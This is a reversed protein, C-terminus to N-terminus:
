AAELLEKLISEKAQRYAERAQEITEFSGLHIQKRKFKIRAVYRNRNKYVGANESNRKNFAQVSWVVWRCNSPEYDGNVNIRDITQGEPKPGMDALFNEFSNKWRDCIKIGRGGYHKFAPMGPDLCRNKIACWIYYEKTGCKRHTKINKPKHRCNTSSGNKLNQAMVVREVGCSCRCLFKTRGRKNSGEFVRSIVTWEGFVQGALDQYQTSV